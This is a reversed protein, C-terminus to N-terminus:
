CFFNSTFKFKSGTTLSATLEIFVLNRNSSLDVCFYLLDLDEATVGYITLNLSNPDFMVNYYTKALSNNTFGSMYTWIFQSTSGQTVYAWAINNIEHGTINCYLRVDDGANAQYTIPGM